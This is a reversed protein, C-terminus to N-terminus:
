LMATRRCAPELSVTRGTQAIAGGSALAGWTPQDCREACVCRAAHTHMLPDAFGVDSPEYVETTWVVRKMDVAPLKDMGAITRSKAFM